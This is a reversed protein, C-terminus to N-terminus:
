AQPLFVTFTSGKGTKSRVELRGQMLTTVNKAISLGLGYGGSDQKSRASDARYFRDFVHPLEDPAIGIGTDKIQIAVQRGAPKVHVSVVSKQPSYKIANDLLIVLVEVLGDKDAMVKRNTKEPLKLSIKKAEALPAVKNLAIKLAIDLVLPSSPLVADELRSLRLLSDSLHRLRALEELNSQLLDKAEGFKLKPDRLAVEIETQMAALPTRLEHSADATFRSQADHAEEIPELTRKAFWYSLAGGSVLIFINTYLLQLFIRERGKTVYTERQEAVEPDTLFLRLRPLRLLAEDQQTLSRDLEQVSIRYLNLSFFLSIAMIIALYLATLRLLTSRLNM